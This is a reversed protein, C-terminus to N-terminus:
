RRRFEFADVLYLEARRATHHRLWPLGEAHARVEFGATDALTILQDASDDGVVGLSPDPTSLVLTGRRTLVRAVSEFFAGADTLVDVVNEAVVTDVSAPTLALQEAQMVAPQCEANAASNLVARLSVDAVILSRATEALAQSLLGAGPGVELVRARPAVRHALWACVSQTEAVASVERLAESAPGDVWGPSGDRALEAETWDDAFLTPAPHAVQARFGALVAIAAPSARRHETLTAVAADFHTACWQAPERVLIPVGGVHPYPGCRRCVWLGDAGRGDRRLSGLCEPCRFAASM